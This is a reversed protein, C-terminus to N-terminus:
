DTELPEYPFRRIAKMCESLALVLTSGWGTPTYPATRQNTQKDAQALFRVAPDRPEIYERITILFEVDGAVQRKKISFHHIRCLEEAPDEQAFMWDAM